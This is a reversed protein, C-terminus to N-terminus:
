EGDIERVELVHTIYVMAIDDDISCSKKLIFNDIFVDRRHKRSTNITSKTDDSCDGYSEVIYDKSG